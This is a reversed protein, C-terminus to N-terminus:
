GIIHIYLKHVRTNHQTFVDVPYPRHAASLATLM